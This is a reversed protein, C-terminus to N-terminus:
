PGFDMIANREIRSGGVNKEPCLDYLRSRAMGFATWQCYNGDRGRSAEWM